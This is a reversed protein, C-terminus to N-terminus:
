SADGYIEDLTKAGLKQQVADVAGNQLSTVYPNNDTHRLDIITEYGTDQWVEFQGWIYAVPRWYGNSDQECVARGNRKVLRPTATGRAHNTKPHIESWTAGANVQVNVAEDDALSAFVEKREDLLKVAAPRLVSDNMAQHIEHLADGHREKFDQEPDDLTTRTRHDWVIRRVEDSSLPGQEIVKEKVDDPVQSTLLYLAQMQDGFEWAKPFKELVQYCTMYNNITARSLRPWYTECWTGFEGHHLVDKVECFAEGMTHVSHIMARGAANITHIRAECYRAIEDDPYHFPIIDTLNRVEPIKMKMFARNM